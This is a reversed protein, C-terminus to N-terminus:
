PRDKHAEQLRKDNQNTLIWAIRLLAYRVLVILNLLLVLMFFFPFVRQIYTTTDFSVGFWKFYLYAFPFAILLPLGLTKLGYMVYQRPLLWVNGGKVFERQHFWDLVLALIFFAAVHILYQPVYNAVSFIEFFGEPEGHWLILHAGICIILVQVAWFIMYFTRWNPIGFKM